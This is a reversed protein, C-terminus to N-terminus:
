LPANVSLLPLKVTLVSRAPPLLRVTVLPVAVKLLLANEVDAPENPVTAFLPVSLKVSVVAVTFIPAREPTPADVNADFKVASETVPPTTATVPVAVKAETVPPVTETVPAVVILPESFPPENVIAPVDLLM